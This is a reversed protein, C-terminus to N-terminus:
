GPVHAWRVESVEDFVACKGSSFRGSPHADYEYQRFGSLGHAQSRSPLCGHSGLALAPECPVHTEGSPRRLRGVMSIGASIMRAECMCVRRGTDACRGTTGVHADREEGLVEQRGRRVPIDEHTSYSRESSVRHSWGSQGQEDAMM